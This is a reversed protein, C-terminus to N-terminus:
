RLGAADAGSGYAVWGGVDRADPAAIQPPKNLCKGDSLRYRGPSVANGGALLLEDGFIALDGQASAGCRLEPNLHGSTNNQWKIGGTAADLAYVHTGDYNIIGAAAYAVGNEVLVGSNVPWTSSLIGYVPIKREAPAARFRWLLRGTAAELTYVYGDASGVYARRQWITPPIRVAGATRFSWRRRGTEADIARVQGDRGGVFVLGGATTPASPFLEVNPKYEWQKTAERAINVKTSSSRHNDARYTAWDQPSEAFEAVESTSSAAAELRESEKADQNFKFGGAPALGIGGMLQLNCDCWSPSTHLLGEAPIWGDNCAPRFAHIMSRRAEVLDYVTTGEGDMVNGRHFLSAPCGTLRACARKGIKLDALIKGTLPEIKKCTWIHAYIYGQYSLLNTQNNAGSVAWLFSGNEASGGVVNGRGRGGFYLGQDTCLTYPCTKFGSGGVDSKAIAALTKADASKWLRKGTDRDLCAIFAGESYIFIRGNKMCMARSDLPLEERHTWLVEKTEPNIAVVTNGYGWRYRDYFGPSLADWGWGGGSNRRRTIQAKLDPKGLLAYLVGDEMAMWMWQEEKVLDKVLVITDLEVGTEPELVVCRKPEMLYLKEATAVFMSRHVMFGEPVARTWLLAGNYVNVAYITNIFKEERFHHAIHGSATFMRGGSIVSIAPMASYHPTRLYQTLYPGKIVTDNSFPNNDPRHHWHTWDDVGKPVPKILEKQALLAKGRPHLVRLVEAESVGAAESVVVVADAMNDVLHLSLLSGKDIYIRSGYFGAAEAAQGATEVDEARPFQMYILLESERALKLALECRKDGLVVCIGHKVGIRELITGPQEAAGFIPQCLLASLITVLLWLKM